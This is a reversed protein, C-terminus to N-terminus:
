NAISSPASGMFFNSHVPDPFDSHDIIKKFLERKGLKEYIEFEQQAKKDVLQIKKTVM